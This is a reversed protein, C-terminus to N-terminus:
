DHTRRHVRGCASVAAAKGAPSPTHTCAGPLPGKGAQRTLSGQRGPAYPIRAQRARLPGKPRAHAHLRRDTGAQLETVTRACNWSM